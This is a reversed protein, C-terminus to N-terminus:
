YSQLRGFTQDVDKGCAEQEKAFWHMKEEQPSPITKVFVFWLHHIRDSLYNGKSYQQGSIEYKVELSNGKALRSFIQSCELVNIDNHSDAM